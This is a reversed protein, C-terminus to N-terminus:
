EKVLKFLQKAIRDRELQKGIEIGQAIAKWLRNRLYISHTKLTAADSCSVGESTSFWHKIAEAEKTM